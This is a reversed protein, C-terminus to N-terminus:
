VYDNAYDSEYLSSVDSARIVAERVDPRTLDLVRLQKDVEAIAEVRRYASGHTGAYICREM